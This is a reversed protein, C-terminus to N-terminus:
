LFTAKSIHATIIGAYPTWTGESTEAFLQSHNMNEHEEPTGIEKGTFDIQEEKEIFAYFTRKSLLHFSHYPLCTGSYAELNLVANDWTFPFLNAM